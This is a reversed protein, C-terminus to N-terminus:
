PGPVGMQVTPTNLAYYKVSCEFLELQQLEEQNPWDGIFSHVYPNLTQAPNVQPAVKWHNETSAPLTPASQPLM